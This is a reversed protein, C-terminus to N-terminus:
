VIIWEFHRWIHKLSFKKLSNETKLNRKDLIGVFIAKFIEARTGELNKGCNKKQENRENLIKGTFALAIERSIVEAIEESFWESIIGSFGVLISWSMREFIHECIKELFEVFNLEKGGASIRESIEESIIEFIQRYKKKIEKLIEM